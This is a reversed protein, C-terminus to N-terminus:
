DIVKIEIKDKLKENELFIYKIGSMNEVDYPVEVGNVLYRRVGEGRNEYTYRVDCGKISVSMEVKDTPLYDPTAIRVGRIQAQIGLAYEYICRTLVAGSGTYWDGCSEGDLEYEENYCYSNPMVFSTKSVHEHTMPMVKFIQEWARRAEGMVFLAMIAFTTCHVYTCANEHTGPTLNVIRGVGKMDAPFYPEVTKIGYKSDLVDYAKLISTKLEPTRELMGSICWFSNGNASYRLAGDTDKLSGVLYSGLDGWGHLIHTRDGDKQLAFKQLGAAVNERIELLEKVKEKNYGVETLIESMELLLKYLQLTAMVSVGTGFEEDRETAGMGCVADNWDGYLIRLCNTRSDIKDTLFDTIKVLHDLVTDVIESKKYLGKQEDIIDYYSCKESLITFDGTSSLYKHLTEIIWLGQDIFQRIDFTPIIDDSDPVSFQRPPRGNSMIFNLARVIQRRADEPNWIQVCTLQQFVDRVGLLWGAYNKGLACLNVQVQLGKFFRNFVTSNVKANDLTNFSVDLGSLKENLQREQEKIDEEIAKVDPTTSILKEAEDEDHSVNLLFSVTTSSKKGLTTKIIESSIGFDSTNAAKKVIPFKGLRLSLANAPTRGVAGLFNTSSVTADVSVPTDSIVTKTVVAINVPDKDEPDSYRIIKAVNNDCLKARRGIPGWPTDNNTYRLIPNFYSAIYTDVVEDTKNIATATFSLKKTTTVCVRLAFVVKETDAIYYACRPSYVTYRSVEVPDYLPKTVGTISVPIWEEGNKIGGWFDVNAGEGLAATRFIVFNSENSAIQGTSHAWLTLGDMYYPYRSEGIYRDCCLIDFDNLYYVNEPLKVDEINKNKLNEIDCLLSLIKEKM